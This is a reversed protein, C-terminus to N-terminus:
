LAADLRQLVAEAHADALDLLSDFAALRELGRKREDWVRTRDAKTWTDDAAATLTDPDLGSSTSLSAEATSLRGAILTTISRATLPNLDPSGHRDIATFLPLRCEAFPQPWTVARACDHTTESSAPTEGIDALEARVARWGVAAIM